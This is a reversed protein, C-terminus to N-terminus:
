RYENSRRIVGTAGGSGTLEVQVTFKATNSCGSFDVALTATTAAGAAVTGLVLPLPPRQVAPSCAAAGGLDTQTFQISGIAVREVATAGTNRLEIRWHRLSRTGEKSLIRGHLQPEQASAVASFILLLPLTKVLHATVQM